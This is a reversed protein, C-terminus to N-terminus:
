LTTTGNKVPSRSGAGVIVDLAFALDRATDLTTGAGGVPDITAINPLFVDGQEESVCRCARM